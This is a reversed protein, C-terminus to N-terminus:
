SLAMIHHGRIQMHLKRNGARDHQCGANHLGDLMGSIAKFYKFGQFQREKIKERKASVFAM